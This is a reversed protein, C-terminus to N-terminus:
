VDIGLMRDLTGRIAERRSGRTRSLKLAVFYLWRGLSIEFRCPLPGHLGITKLVHLRDDVHFPLDLRYLLPLGYMM